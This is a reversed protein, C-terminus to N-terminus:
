EISQMGDLQFHLLNEDFQENAMEGFIDDKLTKISFYWGLFKVQELKESM